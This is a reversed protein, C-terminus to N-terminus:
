EKPLHFLPQGYREVGFVAITKRTEEELLFDAFRRALTAKVLPHKAPNVVIVSYRNVLIPDGESVIALGLSKGQATFTARDTLIYGQKEGAIRLAQAMGTGSKIYWAGHPDIGTKRWIQRERLHTGSEDGRSIFPSGAKAVQSFAKAISREGRVQAPDAPPGALVFEDFLIEKRFSGFGETMFKEESEPDHVILVDADGHRAIQLAQGTGVSVVKVEIGTQKRFMPVLVELLGSDQMSTTTALTLTEAPTSARSCGVLLLCLAIWCLRSAKM